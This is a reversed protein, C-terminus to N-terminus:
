GSSNVYLAQFGVATNWCGTTNNALAFLGVATRCSSEFLAPAVSGTASRQVVGGIVGPGSSLGASAAPAPGGGSPEGLAGGGTSRATLSAVVFADGVKRVPDVVTLRYTGPTTLIAAPAL